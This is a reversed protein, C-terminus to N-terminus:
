FHAILLKTWADFHMFMWAAEVLHFINCRTANQQMGRAVHHKMALQKCCFALHLM